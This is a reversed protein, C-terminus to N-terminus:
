VNQSSHTKRQHHQKEIWVSESKTLYSQLFFRQTPAKKSCIMALTDNITNPTSQFSINVCCGKSLIYNSTADSVYVLILTRLHESFCIWADNVCISLSVTSIETIGAAGQQIHLLITRLYQRLLKMYLPVHEINPSARHCKLVQLGQSLVYKLKTYGSCAKEAM